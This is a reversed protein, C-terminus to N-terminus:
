RSPGADKPGKWPKSKIGLVLLAAAIAGILIRIAGGSASAAKELLSVKKM